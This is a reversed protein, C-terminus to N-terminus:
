ERKPYTISLRAVVESLDMTAGVPPPPISGFAEAEIVIPTLYKLFPNPLKKESLNQKIGEAYADNPIFIGARHYTAVCFFAWIVAVLVFLRQWGNFNALTLKIDSLNRPINM